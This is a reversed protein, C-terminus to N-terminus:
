QAVGLVRGSPMLALGLLATGFTVLLITMALPESRVSRRALLGTLATLAAAALEWPALSRAGPTGAILNTALDALILAAMVTAGILVARRLARREARRVRRRVAPPLM